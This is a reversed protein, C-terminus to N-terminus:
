MRVLKGSVVRDGMMLTWGYVGWQPLATAPIELTQNGSALQTEADYVLRGAMDHIQMHVPAPAQLQVAITAGATTPNPYVAAVINSALAEIPAKVAVTNVGNCNLDGIKIGLFTVSGADQLAGATISEPLPASLPDGTPFVYDSRVFRYSTNMPLEMYIMLILKRIEVIDQTTVKNDHNADAAVWQWPETFPETGNIHKSILVLDYTSVGNLQQDDKFPALVINPSVPSAPLDWCVQPDGFEFFSYPPAFDISDGTITLYVGPISDQNCFLTTCINGISSRLLNNRTNRATKGVFSANTTPAKQAQAAVMGLLLSALLIYNKM